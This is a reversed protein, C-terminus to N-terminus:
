SDRLRPDFPPTFRRLWKSRVYSPSIQPFEIEARMEADMKALMREFEAYANAAQESNRHYLWLKYMGFWYLVQRYQIPILPEDADASLVDVFTNADLYLTYAASPYPYIILRRQGSSQGFITMFKAYDLDVGHGEQLARMQQPGLDQVPRADFQHYAQYLMRISSDLLISSQYVVGSAATSTTGLYPKDLTVVNLTSSAVNYIEEFGRNWFQLEVGAPFTTGGTFTVTSSGNTVSCTAQVAANVQVTFQQDLWDRKKRFTVQENGENIWRDVLTVMNSATTEKADRIIATRINSLTKYSSSVSM